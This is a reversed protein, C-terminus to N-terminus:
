ETVEYDLKGFIGAFPSNRLGQHTGMPPRSQLHLSSSRHQRSARSFADLILDKVKRHEDQQAYTHTYARVRLCSHATCGMNWFYGYDTM